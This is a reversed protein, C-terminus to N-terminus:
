AYFAHAGITAVYPRNRSAYCSLGARAFFLANPLVEAGDLVLKAAVVSEENPTRSFNSYYVSTFQNKQHLVDYINNPFISSRVRNMVVNGVAIKGALVQNGSESYIIHSLWYLSDADYFSDGPAIYFHDAQWPHGLYVTKEENDYAVDLNFAKALVRVPAAVSNNLLIVGDRVYLYRGNAVIYSAGASVTMNLTEQVVNATNGSGDVVQEVKSSSVTAVGNEEEVTAEPDVMAAFSSVTVYTVGNCSQYEVSHQPEFDLYFPAWAPTETEAAAPPTATEEAPVQESPAAALAPLVLSVVALTVLLFSAARKKM